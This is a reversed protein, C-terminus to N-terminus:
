SSMLQKAVYAEYKPDSDNVIVVEFYEKCCQRAVSECLEILNVGENKNKISIIISLIYM